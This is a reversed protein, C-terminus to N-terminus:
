QDRRMKKHKKERELFTIPASFRGSWRFLPEKQMGIFKWKYEFFFIMSGNHEFIFIFFYGWNLILRKKKQYITIYSQHIYGKTFYLHISSFNIPIKLYIAKSRRANKISFNFLLRECKSSCFFALRIDKLCTKEYVFKEMSNSFESLISWANM